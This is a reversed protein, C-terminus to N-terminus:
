MKPLTNLSGLTCTYYESHPKPLEPLGTTTSISPYQFVTDVKKGTSDLAYYYSKIIADIAPSECNKGYLIVETNEHDKEYEKTTDSISFFSFDFKHIQM